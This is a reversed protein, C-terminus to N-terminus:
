GATVLGIIGAVASVLALVLAASILIAHVLLFRSPKGAADRARPDRAVRRWFTPWVIVNFAANFLLLLSLVLPM